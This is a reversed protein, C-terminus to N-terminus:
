GGSSDSGFSLSRGRGVDAASAQRSFTTAGNGTLVKVSKDEVEDDTDSFDSDSDSDSSSDFDSDSSDAACALRARADSMDGAVASLLQRTDSLPVSGRGPQPATPPAVPRVPPPAVPAVPKVSVAPPSPVRGSLPVASSIATVEHREESRLTPVAVGQSGVLMGGRKAIVGAQETLKGFEVPSSGSARLHENYANLELKIHHDFYSLASALEPTKDDFLQKIFNLLQIRMMLTTPNISSDNSLREIDDYIHFPMEFALGKDACISLLPNDGTELLLEKLAGQDRMALMAMKRIDRERSPESSVIIKRHRDCLIRAMGVSDKGGLVESASLAQDPFTSKISLLAKLLSSSNLMDFLPGEQATKYHKRLKQIKGDLKANDKTAVRFEKITLLKRVDQEDLERVVGREDFLDDQINQLFQKKSFHVTNNEFVLGCWMLAMYGPDNELITIPWAERQGGRKSSFQFLGTLLVNFDEELRDAIFGLWDHTPRGHRIMDRELSLLPLIVSGESVTNTAVLITNRKKETNRLEKYRQKRNIRANTEVLQSEVFDSIKDVRKLMYAFDADTNIIEKLSNSDKKYSELKDVKESDEMNADHHIHKANELLTHIDKELGNITEIKRDRASKNEAYVAKQEAIKEVRDICKNLRANAQNVQDDYTVSSIISVRRKGGKEEAANLAQQYATQAEDHDKNIEDENKQKSLGSKEASYKFVSSEALDDADAKNIVALLAVTKEGMKKLPKELAKLEENLKEVAIKDKQKNSKNRDDIVNRLDYIGGFEQVASERFEQTSEESGVYNEVQNQFFPDKLQRQMVLHRLRAIAKLVNVYANAFLQQNEPLSKEEKKSVPKDFYELFKEPENRACEAMTEASIQMEIESDEAYAAARETDTRATEISAAVVPLNFQRRSLCEQLGRCMELSTKPSEELAAWLRPYRNMPFFEPITQSEDGEIDSGVRHAARYLEIRVAVIRRLDENSLKADEPAMENAILLSQLLLSDKFYVKSLLNQFLEKDNLVAKWAKDTSTLQPIAKVASLRESYAYPELHLGNEDRPTAAADALQCWELQANVLQCIEIDSLNMWGKNNLALLFSIAKSAGLCAAVFLACITIELEEQNIEDARDFSPILIEANEAIHFAKRLGLLGHKYFYEMRVLNSVNGFVENNTMTHASTIQAASYFSSKIKGTLTDIEKFDENSVFPHEHIVIKRDPTEGYQLPNKQSARVKEEYQFIVPNCRAEVTAFLAKAKTYEAEAEGSDEPEADKLNREAAKLEDRASDIEDQANQSAYFDPDQPVYKFRLFTEVGKAEELSFLTAQYSDVSIAIIKARLNAWDDIQKQLQARTKQETEKELATLMSSMYTPTDLDEECGKKLLNFEAPTLFYLAQSTQDGWLPVASGYRHRGQFVRRISNLIFEPTFRSLQKKAPNSSSSM